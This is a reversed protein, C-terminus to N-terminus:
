ENNDGIEMKGSIKISNIQLDGTMSLSKSDDIKIQLDDQLHLETITSSKKDVLAEEPIFSEKMILNGTYIHPYNRQESSVSLISNNIKLTYEEDKFNHSLSKMTHTSSSDLKYPLTVSKEINYKFIDCLWTPSFCLKVTYSTDPWTRNSSTGGYNNGTYNVNSVWGNGDRTVEIKPTPMDKIKWIYTAEKLLIFGKNTSFQLDIQLYYTKLFTQIAGYTLPYPYTRGGPYLFFTLTDIGNFDITYYGDPYTYVSYGEYWPEWIPTFEAPYNYVYAECNNQTDIVWSSPMYLKDIPVDTTFTHKDPYYGDENRFTQVPYQQNILSLPLYMDNNVEVYFDENYYADFIESLSIPDNKGFYGVNRMNTLLQKDESFEYLKDPYGINTKEGTGINSFKSIRRAPQNALLKKNFDNVNIPFYKNEFTDSTPPDYKFELTIPSVTIVQTNKFVIEDSCINIDSSCTYTKKTNM